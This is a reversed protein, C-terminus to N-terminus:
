VAMGLCIQGIVSCFWGYSPNGRLAPLSDRRRLIRLIRQDEVAAPRDHGRGARRELSRAFLEIHVRRVEFIALGRTDCWSVFQRLDLRYAARTNGSYGALFGGLAVWVHLEDPDHRSALVSNSM